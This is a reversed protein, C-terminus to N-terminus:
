QDCGPLVLLAMGKTEYQNLGDSRCFGFFNIWYGRWWQSNWYEAHSRDDYFSWARSDVGLSNKYVNDNLADLLRRQEPTTGDYFEGSIEALIDVDSPDIKQSVFSGDIWIKAEIKAALLDQIVKELGDMIKKRSKSKQEFPVVCLQYLEKLTKEHFGASLLPPHEEKPPM